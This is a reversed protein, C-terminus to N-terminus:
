ILRSEFYITLFSYSHLVTAIKDLLFSQIKRICSSHFCYLAKVLIQIKATIHAHAQKIINAHFDTLVVLLGLHHFCESESYIMFSLSFTHAMWSSHTTATQTLPLM